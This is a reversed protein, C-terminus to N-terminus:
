RAFLLGTFTFTKIRSMLKLHNDCHCSKGTNKDIMKLRQTRM